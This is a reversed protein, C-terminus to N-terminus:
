KKRIRNRIKKLTEKVPAPLRGAMRYVGVRMQCYRHRARGLLLGWRRARDSDLRIKWKGREVLVAIGWVSDPSMWGDPNVCNDGWTLVSQEATKWLRHLVYRERVPDAFLVVDGPKGERQRPVITVMDRNRRILPMMSVGNIPIRMPLCTGSQALAHWQAVSLTRTENAM